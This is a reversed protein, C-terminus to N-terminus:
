KEGVVAANLAAKDKLYPFVVEIVVEDVLKEKDCGSLNDSQQCIFNRKLHLM